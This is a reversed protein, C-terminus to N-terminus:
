KDGRAFSWKFSGAKVNGDRRCSRSIGGPNIGSQRSAESISPFVEGTDLCIVQKSKAESNKIASITGMKSALNSHKQHIAKSRQSMQDHTYGMCGLKEQKSKQGGKKGMEKAAKSKGDADKELHKLLASKKGGSKCVEPGPRGAISSLNYCQEKGFWMDLLAQEMVLDDADDEWVEWEFAEPSKRLANQFPYSAKSKLHQKKRREFDTTSGIYFKGNLTNTAKYTLM